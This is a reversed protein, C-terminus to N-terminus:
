YLSKLGSRENKRHWTYKPVGAMRSKCNKGSLIKNELLDLIKKLLFKDSYLAQLNFIRPEDPGYLIRPLADRSNRSNRSIKVTEIALAGTEALNPLRNRLKTRNKIFSYNVDISTLYVKWGIKM